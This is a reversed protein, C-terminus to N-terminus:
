IKIADKKSIFDGTFRGSCIVYFGYKTLHDNYNGVRKKLDSFGGHRVEFVTNNMTGYWWGCFFYDVCIKIKFNSKEILVNRTLEIITIKNKM